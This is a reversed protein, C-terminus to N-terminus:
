VHHRDIFPQLLPKVASPTAFEIAGDIAGDFATLYPALQSRHLSERIQPTLPFYLAIFLVLWLAIAGKLFGVLAGAIKNGTGLIRLKAIRNLVWVVILVAVYAAVGCLFTGLAHSALPGLKTAGDIWGDAFGNYFHPAILGAAIAVLGGIESIFGSRFGKFTTLAIVAVIVIDPWPWGAPNM